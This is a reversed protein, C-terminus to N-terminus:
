SIIICGRPYQCGPGQSYPIRTGRVLYGLFKSVGVMGFKRHVKTGGIGLQIRIKAGGGGGSSGGAHQLLM